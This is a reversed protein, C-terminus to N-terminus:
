PNALFTWWLPLALGGTQVCLKEHVSPEAWSRKALLVDWMMWWFFEQNELEVSFVTPKSTRVWFLGAPFSDDGCTPSVWRQKRMQLIPLWKMGSLDQRLLKGKSVTCYPFSSLLRNTATLCCVRFQIHMPLHRLSSSLQAIKTIGPHAPPSFAMSLASSAFFPKQDTLSYSSWHAGTCFSMKNSVCVM